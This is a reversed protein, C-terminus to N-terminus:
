LNEAQRSFKIYLWIPFMICSLILIIKGQQRQPENYIYVSRGNPLTKKSYFLHYGIFIGFIGGLIASIYGTYIWAKNYTDPKALDDMRKKQISEIIEPKVEKGRERLIKQALQYDFDGWEDRKSIIENLETDSFEFLYYDKDVNEIQSQYYKELEKQAFSFDKPKLKIHIDRSLPNRAFTPDFFKDNDEVQYEIKHKELKEVLDKAIDEQNFRKFTLFTENM